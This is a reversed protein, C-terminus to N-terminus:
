PLRREHKDEGASDRLWAAFMNLSQDLLALTDEQRPSKDKSWFALVGTYLSWYVQLCVPSIAAVGHRQAISAVTELHDVRLSEAAGQQRSAALPSLASELVPTIFKRLPKLQRLEAAILAFLEEELSADDARDSIRAAAANRADALADAALSGVIAEKTDFYNFLTGVAIGAERAIDRTTTADFGCTRFLEVAADVIRQRTANKEQATIRM